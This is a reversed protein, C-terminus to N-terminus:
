GLWASELIRVSNRETNTAGQSDRDPVIVDRAADANSPGVVLLNPNIGLFQGSDSKYLRMAKRAARFAAKTFTGKAGYAMQWFGYGGNYRADVGFLYEDRMIAREGKELRMFSPQRRTQFILPNLPQNTDLLFWLAGSSGTTNSVSAGGVPHDAAFFPKEDYGKETFGDKLLDFVLKDPHLATARGLASFRPAYTGLQNDEVDDRKVSITSEWKRNRITYGLEELEKIYREGIWERLGPVDGLWSYTNSTTSSPVIEAIQPYSPTIGKFGKNYNARGSVYLANYTETPLTM